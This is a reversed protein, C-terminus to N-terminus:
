FQNAFMNNVGNFFKWQIKAKFDFKIPKLRSHFTKESVINQIELSKSIIHSYGTFM